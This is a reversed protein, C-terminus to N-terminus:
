RHPIIRACEEDQLLQKWALGASFGGPGNRAVARHCPIFVPLPNAGCASGAARAAGPFGAAAALESYACTTGPPVARLARWIAVQFPTGQPAAAPFRRPLDILRSCSPIGEGRFAFAVPPREQLPPLHVEDVRGSRDMVLRVRGWTSDLLVPSPSAVSPSRM